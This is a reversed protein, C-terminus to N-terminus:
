ETLQKRPTKQLNSTRLINLKKNVVFAYGPKLRIDKIDGYKQFKYKIDQQTVRPHLRAIFIQTNSQKKEEM